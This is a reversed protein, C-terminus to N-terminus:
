RCASTATTTRVPADLTSREDLTVSMHRSGAITGCALTAIQDLRRRVLSGFPAFRWDESGALVDGISGRVHAAVATPPLRRERGTEDIAVLRLRYSGSGSFMTFALGGGGLALSLLPLVIVAVVGIVLHATRQRRGRGEM